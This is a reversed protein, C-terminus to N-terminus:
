EQVLNPDTDVDENMPEEELMSEDEPVIKTNDIETKDPPYLEDIQQFLEDNSIEMKSQTPEIPPPLSRYAAIEAAVKSTQASTIAPLGSQAVERRLEDLERRKEAQLRERDRKALTAKLLIYEAEEDKDLLPEDLNSTGKSVQQNIGSKQDVQESVKESRLKEALALKEEQDALKLAIQLEREKAAKNEAEKRAFKDEIQRILVTSQPAPSPKPLGTVASAKPTWEMTLSYKFWDDENVESMWIKGLLNHSPAFILFLQDLTLQDYLAHDSGNHGMHGCTECSQNITTCDRTTHTLMKCPPYACRDDNKLLISRRELRQLETPFDEDKSRLDRVKYFNVSIESITDPLDIKTWYYPSSDLKQATKTVDLSKTYGSKRGRRDSYQAFTLHVWPLLNADDSSQKLLIFNWFKWVQNRIARISKIRLATSQNPLDHQEEVLTEFLDKETNHLPSLDFINEMDIRFLERIVIKDKLHGIKVINRDLLDDKLHGPIRKQIVMVKGTPYAFSVIDEEVHFFLFGFTIAESEEIVDDSEKEM